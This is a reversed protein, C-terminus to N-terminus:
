ADGGPQQQQQPPPRPHALVLATVRSLHQSFARVVEAWASAELGQVRARLKEVDDQEPDVHCRLQVLPPGADVHESALHATCGSERRAQSLVAEHVRRDFLGGFDPLLSPHMNLCRGWWEGVLRPSLVRSYGNLLVLDAGAGEVAQALAEEQEDRGGLGETCLWPLGLEKAQQLLGSDARDSAVLSVRYNDSSASLLGRVSSGRTSGLVALRLPGAETAAMREGIDTRCQMGDFRACALGQYATLVARRLSPALGTVSLVRGGTAVVRGQEDRGTGAHTLVWESARGTRVPAAGIPPIPPPRSGKPASGPYAALAGVVTVAWRDSDWQLEDPRLEGRVCSKMVQFLDSRLLPLVSQTEPDGMRCNFELVKPGQQPTLVFGGYLVGVFPRAEQASAMAAVARRMVDAMASLQEASVGPVPCM